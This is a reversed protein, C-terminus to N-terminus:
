WPRRAAGVGEKLSRLGAGIATVQQMRRVVEPLFGGLCELGPVVLVDGAQLRDLVRHLEPQEGRRGAALEEVILECGTEALAEHQASLTDVKGAGGRFYGILM